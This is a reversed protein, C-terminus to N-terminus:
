FFWTWDITEYSFFFLFAVGESWLLSAGSGSKLVSRIPDQVCFLPGCSKLNWRSVGYQLCTYQSLAIGWLEDFNLEMPIDHRQGQLATQRACRASWHQVWSSKAWEIKRILMYLIRPLILVWFQNWVIGLFHIWHM